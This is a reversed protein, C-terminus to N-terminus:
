ETAMPTAVPTAMPPAVLPAVPPALTPAVPPAVPAPVPTEVPPAPTEAPGESGQGPPSPRTMALQLRKRAELVRTEQKQIDSDSIHVQQLTFIYGLAFTQM